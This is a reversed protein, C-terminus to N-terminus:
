LTAPHLICVQVRTQLHLHHTHRNQIDAKRLGDQLSREYHVLSALKYEYLHFVDTLACEQFQFPFFLYIFLLYSFYSFLYFLFCIFILYSYM